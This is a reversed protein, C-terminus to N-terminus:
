KKLKRAYYFGNAYTIEPHREHVAKAIAHATAHPMMHAVALVMNAKSMGGSPHNIGSIKKTESPKHVGQVAVFHAAHDTPKEPHPSSSKGKTGPAVIAIPSKQLKDREEERMKDRDGELKKISAETAAKKAPDTINNLAIKKAHIERGTDTTNDTHSKVTEVGKKGIAKNIEAAHDAHTQSVHSDHIGQATVAKADTKSALIPTTDLVPKQKTHLSKVHAFMEDRTGSFDGFTWTQGKFTATGVKKRNFKVDFTGLKAPYKARLISVNGDEPLEPVPAVKGEGVGNTSFHKKMKEESPQSMKSGDAFTVAHFKTPWQNFFKGHKSIKSITSFSTDFSSGDTFTVNMRGDLDGHLTHKIEKIKKDGILDAFKRANKAIFGDHFNDAAEDAEKNVREMYKPDLGYPSNPSFSPKYADDPNWGKDIYSQRYGNIKEVADPHYDPGFVRQMVHKFPIHYHKGEPRYLDKASKLTPEANKITKEIFNAVYDRYKAKMPVVIKTFEKQLENYTEGELIADTIKQMAV